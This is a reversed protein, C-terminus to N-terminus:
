LPHEQQYGCKATAVVLAMHAAALNNQSGVVVKVVSAAGQNATGNSGLWAPSTDTAACGSTTGSAGALAGAGRRTIIM